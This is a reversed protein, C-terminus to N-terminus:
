IGSHGQTILKSHNDDPLLLGQLTTVLCDSNIIGSRQDRIQGCSM